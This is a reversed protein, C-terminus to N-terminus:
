DRYSLTVFLPDKGMVTNPFIAKLMDLYRDPDDTYPSFHTLWLAEADARKAIEAAEQMMMHHKKKASDWKEEDGYMGELIMLDVGKGLTDLYSVPRTDTAYLVSIGRRAESLVDSPLFGGVAEGSQLKGWLTVPIGKEAARVPDFKPQRALTFRYGLCPMDHDVPFIDVSLGGVTVTVAESTEYEHFVIEFPLEPAIVCLGRVTRELGSPGYMHLPETRGELGFSLLLGPLGSIHDAHFHTFMIAGIKSFKLHARRIATQTGEGCDVLIARGNEQVYLSTLAREPLPMVGGCGLLCIDLM